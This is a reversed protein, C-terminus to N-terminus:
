FWCGTCRTLIMWHSSLSIWGESNCDLAYTCDWCPSQCKFNGSLAYLMKMWVPTGQWAQLLPSVTNVDFAFPKLSYDHYRFQSLWWELEFFQFQCAKGFIHRCSTHWALVSKLAWLVHDVSTQPLQSVPFCIYWLILVTMSTSECDNRTFVLEIDHGDSESTVSPGAKSSDRGSRKPRPINKM